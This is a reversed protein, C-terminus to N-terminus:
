VTKRGTAIYLKYATSNKVLVKNMEHIKKATEEIEKMSRAHLSEATERSREFGFLKYFVKKIIM